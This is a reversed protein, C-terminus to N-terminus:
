LSSLKSLNNAYSWWTEREKFLSLKDSWFVFDRFAINTMEESLGQALNLQLLALMTKYVSIYKAGVYISKMSEIVDYLSRLHEEDTNYVDDIESMERQLLKYNKRVQRGLKPLLEEMEPTFFM